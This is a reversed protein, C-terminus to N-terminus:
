ETKFVFGVAYRWLQWLVSRQYIEKYKWKYKFLNKVIHWRNAWGTQGSCFVYDKDYLTSHIVRETYPSKTVIELNDLKVGLYNVAIDTAVEAFRRMHYKECIAYFQAWDVKDADRKLFMAWDLLQKLKLGEELFHTLAHYTLFLANFMPSPLLAGTGPLTEYSANKLTDCLIQNLQKSKEGERTHVFYQHNEILQGGYLIQSHKYWHEDVNDAWGKALENGKAYDDFLYCDIDGPCRRKPQPYYTGMAQGKMLMMRIGAEAWHRQIAGIVEMQQKNGAEYGQEVSGIWQLIFPKWFCGDEFHDFCRSGMEKSIANIGDLVIGSVGQEKATEELQLWIKQSGILLDSFSEKQIDTITGLGLRLLSFLVQENM